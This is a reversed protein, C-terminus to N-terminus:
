NMLQKQENSRDISAVGAGHAVLLLLAGAFGLNALALWPAIPSPFYALELLTAAGVYVLAGAAVRRTAFGVALLVGAVLEFTIAAALPLDPESFNLDFLWNAAVRFQTLKVLGAIVFVGGVVLRAVFGFAAHRREAAARERRLAEEDAEIARRAAEPDHHLSSHQPRNTAAQASM